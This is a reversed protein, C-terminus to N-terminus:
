TKIEALLDLLSDSAPPEASRLEAGSPPRIVPAVGLLVGRVLLCLVLTRGSSTSVARDSVLPTTVGSGVSTSSVPSRVGVTLLPLPRGGLDALVAVGLRLTIDSSFTSGSGLRDVLSLSTNRSVSWDSGVLGDDDRPLLFFISSSSSSAGGVGLALLIDLLAVIVVRPASTSKNM